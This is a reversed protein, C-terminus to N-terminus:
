RACFAADGHAGFERVEGDELAEVGEIEVRM